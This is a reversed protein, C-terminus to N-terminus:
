LMKWRVAIAEYARAQAGHGRKEAGRAYVECKRALEAAALLHIAEGGHEAFWGSEVLPQLAAIRFREIEGYRESLQDGHGAYKTTLPRDVYGVREGLVMRLWLEYDEAIEIDERFGGHELFFSREIMVTSPGVICKRLADVFIDGARRHRQSAQSVERGDRIWRERTHSIRVPDLGEGGTHLPIQVAIKEPEWEDDSDLFAIWRGRAREVGRNRVAGPMGSHPISILDVRPDKRLWSELHERTGTSSGDDVVILELEISEPLDQALVSAIARDALRPREYVPIVVSVCGPPTSM